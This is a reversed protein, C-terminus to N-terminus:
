FPGTTPDAGNIKVNSAVCTIAIADSGDSSVSLASGAVSASVALLSRQELVELTSLAGSPPPTPRVFRRKASRDNRRFWRHIFRFASVSSLGLESQNRLNSVAVGSLRCKSKIYTRLIAGRFRRARLHTSPRERM